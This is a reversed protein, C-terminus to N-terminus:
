LGVGEIPAFWAVGQRFLSQGQGILVRDDNVLHLLGLLAPDQFIDAITEKLDLTGKRMARYGCAVAHSHSYMGTGDTQRLMRSLPPRPDRAVVGVVLALNRGFVPETSFSIWKKIEPHDLLSGAVSGEVPSKKLACGVLGLTEAILVFGVAISSSIDLISEEIESLTLSEGADRAQFRTFFRASGECTIGYLVHMEPLFTGEAISYDPVSNTDSPLYVAAGAVALFEGFRDRCDSYNTGLAGLGFGFMSPQFREVTCDDATYSATLLPETDGIVRCRYAANSDLASTEFSGNTSEHISVQKEIPTESQVHKSAPASQLLFNSLGSLDMVTKVLPIPNEIRLVGGIGLYKKYYQLLVSIGASSMFSVKSFDLTVNHEGKRLCSELEGALHNSWYSDLRGELELIVTNDQLLRHVVEM